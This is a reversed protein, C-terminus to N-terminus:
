FLQFMNNSFRWALCKLSAETHWISEVLSGELQKVGVSVSRDTRFVNAKKERVFLKNLDAKLFKHPDERFCSEVLLDGEVKVAVKHLKVKPLLSLPVNGIRLEALKEMIEM